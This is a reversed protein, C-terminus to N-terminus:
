GGRKGGGAVVEGALVGAEGARAITSCRMFAHASTTDPPSSSTTSPLAAPTQNQTTHHQPRPPSLHLSEHICAHLYTCSTLLPGPIPGTTTSSSSSSSSPSPSPFTSRIEQALRTYARPCHALYHLTAALATATTEF